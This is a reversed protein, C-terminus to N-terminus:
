ANPDEGWGVELAGIQGLLALDDWRAWEEAVRGGALRVVMVGEVSFRRGSSLYTGLDSRLTGRHTGSWRMRFAWDDGGGAVDLVEFRQDPFATRLSVLAARVARHDRPTGNHRCPDAYLRPIWALEGGNLLALLGRVPEPLVTAM